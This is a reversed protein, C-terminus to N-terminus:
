TLRVIKQAKKWKKTKTLTFNALVKKNTSFLQGQFKGRDGLSVWAEVPWQCVYLGKFDKFSQLIIKM